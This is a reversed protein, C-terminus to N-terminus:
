GNEKIFQDNVLIRLGGVKKLRILRIKKKIQESLGMALMEQATCIISSLKSKKPCGVKCSCNSSSDEGNTKKSQTFINSANISNM